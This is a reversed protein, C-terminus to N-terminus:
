LEEGKELARGDVDSEGLLSILGDLPWERVLKAKWGASAYATDRRRAEEPGIVDIFVAVKRDPWAMEAVWGASGLEYGVEPRPVAHAALTRALDHLEVDDPALEAMVGPWRMDVTSDFDVDRASDEARLVAYAGTGDSIALDESCALTLDSAALQIGDGPGVNLFQLLDGWRLWSAWRPRHDAAGVSRPDDALVTFGSFVAAPGRRDVAFVIRGGDVDSHRVITIDGAASAPMSVGELAAEIREDAGASDTTIIERASPDHALLGALAAEALQRWGQPDPESLFALLSRVPNTWIFDDLDAGRGGSRQYHSRATQQATALYPQWERQEGSSWRVVDDWTLQFVFMGDARLRMRKAADTAIRNHKVSAHWSLGDLYVAVKLPAGDLRTFMVDPIQDRLNKHLEVQWHIVQATVPADIRLDLIEKNAVSVRSAITGPSAPDACWTTLANLFQDELESEVQDVLPIEAVTEIEDTSFKGEGLLEGILNFALKADVFPHDEDPVRSLLCRHCARKGDARCPCSKIIARASRLVAAFDEAKSLRHLYGTGGPLSDYLVLFRRREGTEQDPMSAPVIRLHDPEGRYHAAVGALLAATFSARREDVLTTVAPLLIRIAETTLDHVLVVREDSGSDPDRKRRCWPRHPNNAISTGSSEGTHTQPTGGPDDATAFGCITCVGFGTIRVQEGAVTGSPLVDFRKRGLNFRRISAKGAYDVGFAMGRRRWSGPAIDQPAIDVTTAVEYYMRDRDDSDDSVRANDRRDRASVRRPALVKHLCGADAIAPSKCRECASTDELANFTRAYGCNPCLRWHRWHERGPSGLDLGTIHHKYGNVYFTNGPALETLALQAPRTYERLESDHRVGGSADTEQWYLTGELEVPDDVLAYNPLMGSEVLFEQAGKRRQLETIRRTIARRERELERALQAHESDGATLGGRARQIAVLKAQLDDIKAQFVTAIEAARVQVGSVAFERVAEHAQRATEDDPESPFLALFPEVLEHANALASAAFDSLWGSEGFLLSAQGPLPLVDPLRGRAALDVLHAIYQRKLIEVASLYCGPPAIRGAIMELPEALYYLERPRRGVFSLLLANGTARGARGARQVYNAPSSPVSALLVASLDGIDIGLELTPTASLVNPDTNKVRDRFGKEVRERQERNLVGTHEAAVVQYPEASRYLQRYYDFQFDRGAGPKAEATLVGTCRFRPCSKGLWVHEHGPFLPQHRGCADCAVSAQDLEGDGLLQIRVHGPRFGYIISNDRASHRALAGIDALAPLLQTLYRGAQPKPIRLCRSAWDAFWGSPSSVDDFLSRSKRDGLLFIPASVGNPFAPMGTPRGGWIQWRRMGTQDIYPDLWHHKIAGSTRMRQAVGHVFTLYDDLPPLTGDITLDGGLRQHVDRALAAVEDPNAIDVHVAATRTLEITRGQRSRVGFECIAAFALREAVLDWTAQTAAGGALLDSVGPLDRVDPPVVAALTYSDDDFDDAAAEIVDAILDNLAIARGEVLRSTLLVRLSFTYARDAVFGARHAADQVSDSFILTKREGRELGNSTFLDTVAVSVLSALGSGLFRIGNDLGCGPCRDQAAADDAAKDNRLDALVFVGDLAKAEVDAQKLPRVRAGDAELLLVPVDAGAARREAEAFSAHILARRRRKDDTFAARYVRDAETILEAPDSEPSLAMWGSRGCHRCYVAPLYGSPRSVRETRADDGPVVDIVTHGGNDHQNAEGFWHFGPEATIRRLLRSVSRVWLHADVHLLPRDPAQPDRAHSLLGIFRSLAIAAAKPHTRTETGWAYAGNKPLGALVTDVTAPGGSLVQLVAYTLIHQKLKGGLDAPDTIAEGLVIKAIEALAEPDRAPDPAGALERPSSVPLTVDIDDIFEDVTLRDEGVISSDTFSTGFVRGAVELLETRTETDTGDGGVTASTAVPCIDGLPADPRSTGTASALRRLLMAVDTGQAGDYTHFEDLVVYNIDADDWLRLDDMRQLLLDLMKYNTILIDPRVRRIETRSNLVRAFKTEPTDGIYLGATVGALAPDQLRKDIRGAQDGALANMPYLLIAKIGNGAGNRRARACHDLIPVLFSETKGSGTGTTVLTPEAPGHLTSLREFARAQHQHPRFGAPAWDLHKRWDLDTPRFPTRIRLYPGRFIGEAPDNFFQELADRTADDDLAFTTTLYQTINRRLEDAALTPKM